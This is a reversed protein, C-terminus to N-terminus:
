KTLVSKLQLTRILRHLHNTHIGLIKAALTYNGKAQKYARIIAQKQADKVADHMNQLSPDPVSEENKDVGPLFEKELYDSAGLVIAREITNKLERVNGPWSYGTLLARAEPSLRVPRCQQKECYKAIFYNALLLIDELRERLPPMKFSLVNLRYYFDQRFTNQKVAEELDKNTAAVVRVDTKIMSTGGVRRFEQNDLTRLLKAQLSLPMEGIEDLFITGGQALELLGRKQTHAGTFAGKEHGFLESEVLTENFEACNIAVFPRDARASNLHIAHAALDKGTGSEGRILVTLDTSAARAISQFVKRMVLSKGILNHKIQAETRLQSNESELWEMHLANELAVSSIGAIATMLQLDDEDFKVVPDSTDLYIVGIVQGFFELPVCLLSKTQAAILSAAGDSQQDNNVDNSLIAVGERLVQSTITHSVEVPTKQESRRDWGILSVIDGVNSGTLLIAGREAPSVEFILELLREQLEKLNRISNIINSIKLLISLDRAVKSSQPLKSLVKEPHLYFAEDRHLRITSRTMLGGQELDVVSISRASKDERLLFLLLVDGIALQDRHKLLQQTVPLGNILTGNFSDLDILQYEDACKKLMCHHRSVSLDPLCLRNSQDRGISVEDDTLAFVTGRLPGIVVILKPKM